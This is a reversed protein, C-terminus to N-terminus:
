RYSELLRPLTTERRIRDCGVLGKERVVGLGCSEIGSWKKFSLVVSDRTRAGRAERPFPHDTSGSRCTVANGEERGKPEPNTHTNIIATGRWGQGRNRGLSSSSEYYRPVLLRVPVNSLSGCRAQRNRLQAPGSLGFFIM